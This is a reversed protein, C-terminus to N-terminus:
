DEISNMYQKMYKFGICDQEIMHCKFGCGHAMQMAATEIFEKDNNAETDPRFACGSCMKGASALMAGKRAAEIFVENLPM